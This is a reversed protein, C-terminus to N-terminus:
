HTPEKLEWGLEHRIQKPDPPPRRQGIQEKLWARVMEKTPQTTNDM